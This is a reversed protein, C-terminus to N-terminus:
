NINYNEIEVVRNEISTQLKIFIKVVLVLIINSFQFTKKIRKISESKIKAAKKRQIRGEKKNKSYDKLIKHISPHENITNYQEYRTDLLENGNISDGFYIIELIEEESLRTKIMNEIDRIINLSVMQKDDLEAEDILSKDEEIVRERTSIPKDDSIGELTSYDEECLMEGCNKCYIYGDNPTSGYKNKLVDIMNKDNELQIIYLNHKCLLVEEPNSKLYINHPNEGDLIYENNYKVIFRRLYSIKLRMNYTNNIIGLAKKYNPVILSDYKTIKYKRFQHYENDKIYRKSNQKLLSRVNRHLVMSINDLNLSYPKYLKLFDTYNYVLQNIKEKHYYSFISMINPTVIKLIETFIELDIKKGLKIYNMYITNPNYDNINKKNIDTIVNYVIEGNEIKKYYAQRKTNKLSANDYIKSKENINFLTDHLDINKVYNIPLICFGIINL